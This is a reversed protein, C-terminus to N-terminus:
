LFFLRHQQHGLSRVERCRTEFPLQTKTILIVFIVRLPRCLSLFQQFTIDFNVLLLGASNRGGFIFGPYARGIISEVDLGLQVFGKTLPLRKRKPYHKKLNKETILVSKTHKFHSQRFSLFFLCSRGAMNFIKGLENKGM